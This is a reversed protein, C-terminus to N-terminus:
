HTSFFRQYQLFKINLEKYRNISSGSVSCGQLGLKRVGSKVLIDFGEDTTATMSLIVNEPVKKSSAIAKATENKVQSNGGLSITRLYPFRAAIYNQYGNSTYLLPMSAFELFLHRLHHGCRLHDFYQSYSHSPLPLNWTSHNVRLEETTFELPNSPMDPPRTFSTGQIHISKIPSLFHYGTFTNDNHVTLSELQLLTTELLSHIGPGRQNEQKNYHLSLHKLMPMRSRILTLTPSAPGQNRLGILSLRELPFTDPIEPRTLNKKKRNMDLERTYWSPTKISSYIVTLEKLSPIGLLVDLLIDYSFTSSISLVELGKFLDTPATVFLYFAALTELEIHLERIRGSLNSSFFNLCRLESNPHIRNIKLYSIKMSQSPGMAPRIAERLAAGDTWKYFKVRLDMNQCWLNQDSRIVTRWLKSVMTCAVITQLPLLELIHHFIDPYPLVQMPDKRGVEKKTDKSKLTEAFADYANKLRLRTPEILPLNNLGDTYIKLALSANGEMECVKAACLYGKSVNPNLKIM